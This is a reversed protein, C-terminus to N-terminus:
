IKTCLKNLLFRAQVFSIVNVFESCLNTVLTRKSCLLNIYYNIYKNLLCLNPEFYYPLFLFFMFNSRSMDIDLSSPSQPSWKSQVIGITVLHIFLHITTSLPRDPPRLPYNDLKGRIDLGKM